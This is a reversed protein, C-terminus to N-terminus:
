EGDLQSRAEAQAALVAQSVIYNKAQNIFRNKLEAVIAPLIEEPEMEEININYLKAIAGVYEPHEDLEPVDIFIQM